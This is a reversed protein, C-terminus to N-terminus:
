RAEGRIEAIAEGLAVRLPKYRLGLEREARTGDFILSGAATTKLIDLPIPSRRGTLTGLMELVRAVPILVSESLNLKPVRVDALEGMLEFYARTSAREKGILYRRGLTTSYLLARAIAETADDVHV